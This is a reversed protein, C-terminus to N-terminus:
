LGLFVFYLRVIKLVSKIRDQRVCSHWVSIAAAPKRYIQRLPFSAADNYRPKLRLTVLYQQWTNTGLVEVFQVGNRKWPTGRCRRHFFYVCKKKVTTGHNCNWMHVDRSFLYTFYPTEHDLRDRHWGIRQLTVNKECIFYWRDKKKVIPLRVARTSSINSSNQTLTILSLDNLYNRSTISSFTWSVSYIRYLACHFFDM